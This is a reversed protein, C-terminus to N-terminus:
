STKSVPSFRFNPLYSGFNPQVVICVVDVMIIIINRSISKSDIYYKRELIQIDEDQLHLYLEVNMAPQM